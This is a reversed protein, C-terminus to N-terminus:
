KNKLKMKIEEYLLFILFIILSLSSLILIYNQFIPVFHKLYIASLTFSTLSMLFALILPITKLDNTCKDSTRENFKRKKNRKKTESENEQEIDMNQEIKSQENSLELNIATMDHQEYCQQLGKEQKITDNNEALSRKVGLNIVNKLNNEYNWTECTGLNNSYQLIWILFAYIFFKIFFHLRYKKEKKHSIKITSIDKTIFGKSTHSCFTDYISTNKIANSKM